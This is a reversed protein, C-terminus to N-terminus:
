CLVFAARRLCRDNISREQPYRHHPLIKPLHIAFARQRKTILVAAPMNKRWYLNHFVNTAGAATQQVNDSADRM